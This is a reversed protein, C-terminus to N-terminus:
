KAAAFRSRGKLHSPVVKAPKEETTTSSNLEQTDGPLTRTTPTTPTTAKPPTAKLLQSLLTIESTFASAMELPITELREKVTLDENKANKLMPIKADLNLGAKRVEESRALRTASATEQAVLAAAADDKEKKVAEALAEEHATKSVYEGSALKADVAAQIEAARTEADETSALEGFLADMEELQEVPLRSGSANEATTLPKSMQARLKKFRKNLMEFRKTMTNALESDDDDGNSSADSQLPINVLHVHTELRQGSPPSDYYRGSWSDTVGTLSPPNGTSLQRSSFYHGHDLTPVIDMTSLIAHRHGDPAPETYGIVTISAIEQLMKEIAEDVKEKRGVSACEQFRRAHLGFTKNKGPMSALEQPTAAVLSLIDATRDAPTQTLAIGTFDVKGTIGGCLLVVPFGKYPKVSNTEVCDKMGKEADKVPIFAGRYFFFGDAMKHFCELSTKWTRKKLLHTEIISDVGTVRNFLAMLGDVPLPPSYKALREPTSAKKVKGTGNGIKMAKVHGLVIDQNFKNNELVHEYDVLQDNMSKFSNLLVNPAFSRGRQNVTPFSTCMRFPLYTIHESENLAVSSFMESAQKHSIIGVKSESSFCESVMKGSDIEDDIRPM